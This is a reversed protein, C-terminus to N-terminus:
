LAEPPFARGAVPPAVISWITPLAPAKNAAPPKRIRLSVRYSRRSVGFWLRRRVRRSLSPRPALAGARLRELPCSGPIPHRSAPPRRSSSTTKPPALVSRLVDRAGAMAALEGFTVERPLHNMGCYSTILNQESSLWSRGRDNIREVLTYPSEVNM